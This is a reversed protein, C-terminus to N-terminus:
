SNRGRPGDSCGIQAPPQLGWRALDDPNNLDAIVDPDGVALEVLKRPHTAVLTNVGLGSPLNPLEAAVNWPLAIPHGRRGDHCPIVIHGPWRVASQLLRSVLVPTIGPCDAPTLLLLEPPPAGVLSQLALEVSVRMEAPRDEPALVEGGAKQAERALAPGEPESAPPVVVIVRDV